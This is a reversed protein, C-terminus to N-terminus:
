MSGILDYQREVDDIVQVLRQMDVDTMAPYVPVYVVQAMLDAAQHPIATFLGVPPSVVTLSSASRTADFGEQQLRRVVEEPQSTLMPIVWHTHNQAQLGPRYHTLLYPTLRQVLAMRPRVGPAQKDRLRRELLRLLPVCPQHRIREILNGGSFSRLNQSLLNDYNIGRWRCVHVFGRLVLPQALLRLLMFLVVRHGFPSKPQRPYTAQLQRVRALVTSDRFHLVAGGLATQTKILGFSFMVVDSAPHGLYESGAYAQACDEILLLGHRQAIAAIPELDMRSGFLHAVLIARTRPGILLELETPDISLTDIDVDVPVPVLGHHELIQIMPSITIASVIVESGRPLDVAQLFLDFGSRVSLCALNHGDSSWSQEIRKQLKVPNGPRICGFLGYFLDSWGIDPVGRPIM